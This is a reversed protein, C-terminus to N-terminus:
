HVPATNETVYSSSNFAARIFELKWLTLYWTVTHNSNHTLFPTAPLSVEHLLTRGNFSVPGGWSTLFNGASQPVRFNRLMYLNMRHPSTVVEGLGWAPSTVMCLETSRDLRRGPNRCSQNWNCFLQCDESSPLDGTQVGSIRIHAQIEEARGPVCRFM